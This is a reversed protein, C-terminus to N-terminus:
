LTKQHLVMQDGAIGQEDASATAAIEWAAIWLVHVVAQRLPQGLEVIAGDHKRTMVIRGLWIGGYAIFLAEIGIQLERRQLVKQATAHANHLSQLAHGDNILRLGNFCKYVNCKWAIRLM